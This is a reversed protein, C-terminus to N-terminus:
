VLTHYNQLVEQPNQIKGLLWSAVNNAIQKNYEIHDVLSISLVEVSTGILFVCDAEYIDNLSVIKKHFTIKWLNLWINWM